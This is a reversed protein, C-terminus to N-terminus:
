TRHDTLRLRHPKGPAPCFPGCLPEMAAPDRAIAASPPLLAPDLTFTVRTGADTPADFPVPPGAPDFGHFDHRLGRRDTWTEVRTRACFAATAEHAWWRPGLLMAAPDGPVTLPLGHAIAFTLDDRIEATVELAHPEPSPPHLAERLPLILARTAFRPDDPGAGFFMRPRKRVGEGFRRPVEIAAAYDEHPLM